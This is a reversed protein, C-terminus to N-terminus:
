LYYVFLKKVDNLQLIDFIELFDSPSLQMQLLQIANLVDLYQQYLDKTNKDYDKKFLGKKHFNFLAAFQDINLKINSPTNLFSLQITQLSNQQKLYNYLDKLKDFKEKNLSPYKKNLDLFKNILDENLYNIINKLDNLNDLNLNLNLCLTYFAYFDMLNEDKLCESLNILDNFIENSLLPYKNVFYYADNLMTKDITQNLSKLTKFSFLNLKNYSTLLNLFKKFIDEDLNTYKNKLEWYQKQADSVYSKLNLSSPKIENIDTLLDFLIKFNDYFDEKIQKQSSVNDKPILQLCFYQLNQMRKIVVDLASKKQSIFLATKNEHMINALINAITQSKGTGPPGLIILNNDLAKIIAKEQSPDTQCIRVISQRKNILTDIAQNDFQFPDYDAPSALIADLKNEEILNIVIRRLKSGSPNAFMSVMGPVKITQTGVNQIIDDKDKNIFKGILSVDVDKIFSKYYENLQINLKSIIIEDLNDKLSIATNAKYTKLLFILKENLVCYDSNSILYVDNGVIDIDIEKLILPAYIPKANVNCEIFYTGLYYPWIGALNYSENIARKVDRWNMLFKDLKKNINNIALTKYENFKTQDKELVFIESKKLLKYEKVKLIFEDCNSCKELEKKLIGYREPKIKIRFTPKSLILNLEEENLLTMLDENNNTVTTKTYLTSGDNQFSVNLLNDLIKKYKINKNYNKLDENTNTNEINLYDLNEYM